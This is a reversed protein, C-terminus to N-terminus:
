TAVTLGPTRTTGLTLVYQDQTKGVSPPLTLLLPAGAVHVPAEGSAMTKGDARTLTYVIRDDFAAGGLDVALTVVGGPGAAVVAEQGRSAPRLTSPTLALSDAGGRSGLPGQVTQFGLGIALLAAAAWPLAVSTRWRSQQRTFPLVAAREGTTRASGEARALGSAAGDRMLAAARVDEACAVCSFFHEEFADRETDPMEQLLYREVALTSMAQAHDM